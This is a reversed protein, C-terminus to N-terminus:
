LGELVYAHDHLVIRRHFRWIGDEKVLECEYRGPPLYDSKGHRTIFVLLYCTAVARDGTTEIALNTILHRFQTGAQRMAAFREAFGRIAATGSRTGIAPSQLVADSTFCDVVTEVEGSDLATTYRVFLDYIALRDEIATEPM